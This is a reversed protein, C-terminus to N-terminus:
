KHKTIFKFYNLTRYGKIFQWVETNLYYKAYFYLILKDDNKDKIYLLRNEDIKNIEHNKTDYNDYHLEITEKESNTKKTLFALSPGRMIKTTEHYTYDNILHKQNFQFLKNLKIYRIYHHNHKSFVFYRESLDFYSMFKYYIMNYWNLKIFFEDNNQNILYITDLLYPNIFSYLYLMMNYYIKYFTLVINYM